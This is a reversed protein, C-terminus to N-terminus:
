YRQQIHVKEVNRHHKTHVQIQSGPREDPPWDIEIVLSRNAQPSILQNILTSDDTGIKALSLQQVIDSSTQTLTPDDQKLFRKLDEVSMGAAIKWAFPKLQRRISADWYSYLLLALYSVRNPLLKEQNKTFGPWRKAAKLKAQVLLGRGYETIHLSSYRHVIRPRLIVLGFDGGTLKETARKHLTVTAKLGRAIQSPDIDIDDHSFSLRFDRIFAAEIEKGSSASFLAKVLETHFSTTIEEESLGPSYNQVQHQLGKEAENWCRALLSATHPVNLVGHM